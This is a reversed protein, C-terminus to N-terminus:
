SAAVNQDDLDFGAEEVIAGVRFPLIIELIAVPKIERHPRIERALDDRFLSPEDEGIAIARFEHPFPNLLPQRGCAASGHHEGERAGCREPQLL